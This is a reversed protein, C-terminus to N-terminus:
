GGDGTGIGSLRPDAPRSRSGFARAMLGNGRLVVDGDVAEARVGAVAAARAAVKDAAQVAAAAAAAQALAQARRMVREASM